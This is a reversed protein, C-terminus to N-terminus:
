VSTRAAIHARLVTLEDSLAERRRALERDAKQALKEIDEVLDSIVEKRKSRSATTCLEVVTSALQPLNRKLMVSFEILSPDVASADGLALVRACKRRAACVRGKQSAALDEITQWAARVSRDTEPVFGEEEPPEPLAVITTNLPRGVTKVTSAEIPLYRCAAYGIASVFFILGGALGAGGANAFGFSESLDQIIMAIAFSVGVAVGTAFAAALLRIVAAVLMAIICLVALVFVAAVILGLVFGLISEKM